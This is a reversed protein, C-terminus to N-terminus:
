LESPRELGYAICLDGLEGRALDTLRGARDVSIHGGEIARVITEIFSRSFPLPPASRGRQRVAEDLDEGRINTLHPYRRSNVLRWKLGRASVGLESAAATLWVVLDGHPEGIRDLERSPMLLGSAFNDALNEIRLNRKEARTLLRDPVREWAEIASEVPAPRMTDWTLIHFTEHALDSNQRAESEHRNILIANLVNLRCAAGSIGEIAEVMLVLVGLRKELTEALALAPREGLGLEDATAEGAAVADEFSSDHTLGLRPLLNKLRTENLRNLERYAGVWEGARAEFAELKALPVDRQRWSFSEKGSLLFPNTLQEFSVGFQDVIAILEDATVRRKGHEIDSVSQRNELGLIGALEEQGMHVSERLAKIRAGINTQIM